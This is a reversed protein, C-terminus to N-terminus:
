RRARCRRITAPLRASLSRCEHGMASLQARVHADASPAAHDAKARGCNRPERACRLWRSGPAIRADSRDKGGTRGTQAQRTRRTAASRGIDATQDDVRYQLGYRGVDQAAGMSRAGFAGQYIVSDETAAMAVVGPVEAADVRAQLIADIEESHSPTRLPAALGPIAAGPILGAAAVAATRLLTDRRSLRVTMASGGGEVLRRRFANGEAETVASDPTTLVPRGTVEAVLEAAPAM